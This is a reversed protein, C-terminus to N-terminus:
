RRWKGKKSEFIITKYTLQHWIIKTEIMLCSKCFYWSTEWSYGNRNKGNHRRGEQHESEEKLWSM